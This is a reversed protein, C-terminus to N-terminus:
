RRMLGFAVHRGLKQVIALKIWVMAAPELYRAGDLGGLDLPEFGLDTALASAVAKAAADNGALVMAARGQAYVPDAMNEFGTTNFIKVVKAGPAWAQVQEGGSTTHGLALAFGPGIPNTADLLPKGAFDGAAALAEQAGAWPTALLVADAWRVAAAIGAAEAGPTATIAARVKDSAPNRAGYRITHGKAAWTKGLTSGVSGAGIIAIKM